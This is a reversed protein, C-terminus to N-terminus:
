TPSAAPPPRHRRLQRAAARFRRTLARDPRSAPAPGYRQRDLTELLDALVDGAAGLRARVRAALTRPGEHAAADVGLRRLAARVGDM